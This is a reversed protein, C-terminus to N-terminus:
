CFTILYQLIGTNCNKGIKIQDIFVLLPVSSPPPLNLGKGGGGLDPNISGQYLHKLWFM